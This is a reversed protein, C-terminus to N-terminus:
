VVVAAYPVAHHRLLAVVSEQLAPELSLTARAGNPLDVVYHGGDRRAATPDLGEITASVVPAAPTASPPREGPTPARAPETTSPHTAAPRRQADAVRKCLMLPAASATAGAVILAIRLKPTMTLPTVRTARRRDFERCRSAGREARGRTGYSTGTARSGFLVGVLGLTPSMVRTAGEFSPSTPAGSEAQRM